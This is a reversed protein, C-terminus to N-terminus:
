GLHPMWGAVSSEALAGWFWLRRSCGRVGWVGPGLVFAAPVIGPRPAWQRPELRARNEPLVDVPLREQQQRKGGHLLAHLQLQPGGDLQAMLDLSHLHSEVGLVGVSEVRLPPPRGTINIIGHRPFTKPVPVKIKRPKSLHNM